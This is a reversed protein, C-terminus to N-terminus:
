SNTSHANKAALLSKITSALVARDIPKTLYDDAGCETAREVDGTESLATVMVIIIDRTDAGAKLQKCVEFGSMRPMMIDLLILDPRHTEVEQLAELGNAATRVKINPIDELYIQLLEMNQTNDDVVLVTSKKAAAQSM